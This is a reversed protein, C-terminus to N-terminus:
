QIECFDDTKQACACRTTMVGHLWSFAADLVAAHAALIHRGQGPVAGHRCCLPVLRGDARVRHARRRHAAALRRARPQSAVRRPLASEVRGAARIPPLYIRNDALHVMLLM